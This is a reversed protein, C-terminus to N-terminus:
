KKLSVTLRRILYCLNSYASAYYALFLLFFFPLSTLGIISDMSISSSFIFFYACSDESSSSSFFYPTGVCINYSYSINLIHKTIHYFLPIVHFTRHLNFLIYSFFLLLSRRIGIELLLLIIKLEIYFLHNRPNVLHILKFVECWVKLFLVSKMWICHAVKDISLEWYLLSVIQLGYQCWFSNM